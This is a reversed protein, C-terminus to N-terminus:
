KTNDQVSGPKPTEMEGTRINPMPLPGGLSITGGTRQSRPDPFIKDSSSPHPKISGDPGVDAYAGAISKSQMDPASAIPLETDPRGSWASCGVLLFVAPIMVMYGCIQKMTMADEERDDPTDQM